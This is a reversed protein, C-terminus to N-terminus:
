EKEILLMELLSNWRLVEMHLVLILEAINNIKGNM